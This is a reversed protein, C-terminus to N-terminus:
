ALNLVVSGSAGNYGDVAFYYTTGAVANFTLASTYTGGAPDDDDSASRRSLTSM